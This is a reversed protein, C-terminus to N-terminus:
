LIGYSNILGKWASNVQETYIPDLERRKAWLINKQEHLGKMVRLWQDHRPNTCIKQGKPKTKDYYTSTYKHKQNLAKVRDIRANIERLRKFLLDLEAQHPKMHTHTNHSPTTLM